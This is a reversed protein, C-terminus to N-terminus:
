GGNATSTAGTLTLVLWGKQDAASSLAITM